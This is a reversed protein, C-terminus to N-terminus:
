RRDLVTEVRSIVRLTQKQCENLQGFLLANQEIIQSNRDLADTFHQLHSSLTRNYIKDKWASYAILLIAIGVAGAQIVMELLVSENGTNTM